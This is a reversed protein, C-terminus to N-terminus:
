TPIVSAWNSFNPWVCQSFTDLRSKDVTTPRRRWPAVVTAAVISMACTAPIRTKTVPPMPPTCRPASSDHSTEASRVSNPRVGTATTQAPAFDIRSMGFVSSYRSVCPTVTIPRRVSVKGANKVGDDPSGTGVVQLESCSTALMMSACTRSPKIDPRTTPLGTGASSAASATMTSFAVSCATASAAAWPTAPRSVVGNKSLRILSIVPPSDRRAFMSSILCLASTPVRM